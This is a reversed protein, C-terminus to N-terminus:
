LKSTIEALCNAALHHGAKAELPGDIWCSTDLFNEDNRQHVDSLYIEFGRSACNTKLEKFLSLLVSKETKHGNDAALIYLM